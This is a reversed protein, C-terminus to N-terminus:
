YLRKMSNIASMARSTDVGITRFYWDLSEERPMNESLVKQLGDSRTIYGERIQNSRFTDNESFGAVRAYIYNYLASTGDGIRWTSPYGDEKGWGYGEILTTNITKEDWPLFDFLSVYDKPYFYYGFFGIFSDWLSSNFFAPAASMRRFFAFATRARNWLGLRIYDKKEFPENVGLFGTKFDTRELYNTGWFVIDTGSERGLRPLHFYVQKDGAMFLTVTAIDPSGLWAEVNKRINNRKREIGGDVIVHRVGLSDTMTKMNRYGTDTTMGWDYTYALPRLGLEKKVFHLMFSSDRGGSFPVICDYERSKKLGSLRKEIELELAKKGPFERKKHTRCYICEGSGDLELFPFTVPLLCRTCRKLSALAEQDIYPISSSNM